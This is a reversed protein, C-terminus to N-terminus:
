LRRCLRSNQASVRAGRHSKILRIMKTVRLIIDNVIRIPRIVKERRFCM